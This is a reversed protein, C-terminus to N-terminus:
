DAYLKKEILKRDITWIEYFDVQVIKKQRM